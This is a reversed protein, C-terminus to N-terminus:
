EAVKVMSPRVVKGSVKYGKQLEQIIKGSEVGEVQEMMVAHHLSPDFIADRTDIYELGEKVLIEVFRKMIMEVGNSFAEANSEDKHILARDFDDILPLLDTILRSNASKYIESKEKESRKKYNSFDASLRIYRNEFDEGEKKNTDQHNEEETINEEAVAEETEEIDQVEDQNAELKEDTTQKNKETM